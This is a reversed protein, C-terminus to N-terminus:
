PYFQALKKALERMAIGRHSERIKVDAPLEASTCGYQPLFFHPDYGFGGNGRADAVIEGHWAGDAIIPHPDDAHQVFVLAAYYFARRDEIGQMAAVLKENNHTDSRPEGAFRASYVGPAGGLVPVCIGSDDALAPLGTVRSAHRAKALANEIFTAFPEDAESVGLESQPIALFDFNKLLEAFERLKGASNSAIVIKKMAPLIASYAVSPARLKGSPIKESHQLATFDNITSEGM